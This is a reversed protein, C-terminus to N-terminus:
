IHLPTKGNNKIYNIGVVEGSVFVWVLLAVGFRMLALEVNMAEAGLLLIMVLALCRGEIALFITM